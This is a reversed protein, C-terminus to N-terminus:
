RKKRKFYSLVREKVKNEGTIKNLRKEQRRRYEELTIGAEVVTGDSLMVKDGKKVKVFITSEGSGLMVLTRDKKRFLKCKNKKHYERMIEQQKENDLNSFEEYSMGTAKYVDDNIKDMIEQSLKM